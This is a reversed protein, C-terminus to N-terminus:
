VSVQGTKSLEQRYVLGVASILGTMVWLYPLAFSDISFGEGIFAILSLQGALALTKLVPNASRYSLRASRLLLYIWTVFVSFGVLGTEALLRVWFSKINPFAKLRYFLSRVEVSAWGLNPVHQLFFFGANGLGVGLWPYSQFIRWGTVWYIMREMFAWRISLYLLVDEKLTLAGLIEEKSLPYSLMMSLRWDRRSSVFVVAALLGAYSALFLLAVLAAILVKIQRQFRQHKVWPLAMIAGVVRKFIALNLILYLYGLSLLLSIMGVRPSSLFFVVIGLLLLINELSLRFLRFKFASTRQYTAALWLPLYLMVMQHAFWSAEYTLGNVRGYVLEVQPSKYVLLNQIRQMWGPYGDWGKFMFYAQLLAWIVLLIGGLNIGQWIKRLREKDQPWTAFVFYFALGIALTAFSRIEQGFLTKGKFSPVEIFFVGANSLLVVLVFVGALFSERPISGRRLLYPVFWLLFLLVIPLASLPAVQAGTLRTFLPFSTIPLSALTVIWLLDLFKPWTLLSPCARKLRSLM